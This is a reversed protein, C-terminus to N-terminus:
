NTHHIPYMKFNNKKFKVMQQIIRAKQLVTLGINIGLM